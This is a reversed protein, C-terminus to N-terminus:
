IRNGGHGFKYLELASTPGTFANQPKQRILKLANRVVMKPKSGVSKHSDVTRGSRSTDPRYGQGSGQRLLM